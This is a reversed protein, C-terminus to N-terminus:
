INKINYLRVDYHNLSRITDLEEITIESKDINNVIVHPEIEFGLLSSLIPLKLPFSYVDFKFNCNLLTNFEKENIPINFDTRLLIFKCCVNRNVELSCYDLINNVDFNNNQKLLHNLDLHNVVGISKLNRSYHKFEGIVREIPNRLVCYLIDNNTVNTNQIQDSNHIWTIKKLEDKNFLSRKISRGCTHPVHLYIIM